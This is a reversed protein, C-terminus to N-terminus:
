AEDIAVVAPDSNFRHPHFRESPRKFGSLLSKMASIEDKYLDLWFARDARLYKIILWLEIILFVAISASLYAENNGQYIKITEPKFLAYCVMFVLWHRFRLFVEKCTPDKDTPFPM